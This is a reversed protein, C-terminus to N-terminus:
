TSGVLRDIEQTLDYGGIPCGDADVVRGGEIRVKGDAFARLTAVVLPLERMVGQRRIEGFLRNDEGESAQVEAVSRDGMGVWLGDFAPGRISYTCYTVSPGKDLEKTALHMMVGATSAGQEMLQWIVEQWTGTPGGPPAPHLNLLNYRQCAVQTFILMYGALVGLDFSYAELLGIVARDYEARWAPLPEGARAPSAGREQRFRRSSLCVLPIGYGEVLDFFRDSAADEGRERNSFVFVIRARLEGAQIAQWTAELLQCAAEDRGTSFWGIRLV